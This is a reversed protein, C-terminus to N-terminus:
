LSSDPQRIPDLSSKLESIAQRLNQGANELNLKAANLDRAGLSLLIASKVSGEAHGLYEDAQEATCNGLESVIRAARELLKKNDAYLNVMYGDHVHGLRIGMLTSMMNLTAKQATGAGLRTSGAIVEPPTPLYIAISAQELIPTRPTNSIGIVSAGIQKAAKIVALPYATSGSASIAIICDRQSIGAADRVASLEDDESDGALDTLSAQGGALLIRISHKNIGFTGPLELGDALGMLGSSGAAAYILSGGNNITEAMLEAAQHIAPLASRVSDIADSQGASLIQLIELSDLTDINAARSHLQETQRLNM